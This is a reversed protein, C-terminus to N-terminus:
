RSLGKRYTDPYNSKNIYKDFSSVNCLNMILLMNSFGFLLFLVIVVGWIFISPIILLFLPIISLVLCLINKFITVFTFIISNKILQKNSTKYMMKISLEYFKFIVYLSFIFIFLVQIIGNPSINIFLGIIGFIIAFILGYIIYSKIYEKLSNKFDIKFIVVEDLIMKLIIKNIGALGIFGVPIFILLPLYKLLLYTTLNYNTFLASIILWSITPIFFLFLILNLKFLNIFNNKVLYFYQRFRNKPLMSKNFDPNDGKGYIINTSISM